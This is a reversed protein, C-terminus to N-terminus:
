SASEESWVDKIISKCNTLVEEKQQKILSIEESNILGRTFCDNVEGQDLVTADGNSDFWIDLELDEYKVYNKGIDINKCIHFLYGRLNDDPDKFKWM